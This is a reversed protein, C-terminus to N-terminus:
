HLISITQGILYSRQEYCYYVCSYLVVRACFFMVTELVEGLFSRWSGEIWIEIRNELLLRFRSSVIWWFFFVVVNM